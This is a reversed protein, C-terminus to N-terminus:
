AFSYQRGFTEHLKLIMDPEWGQVLDDIARTQKFFTVIGRFKELLLVIRVPNKLM